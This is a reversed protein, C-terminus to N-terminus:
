INSAKPIPKTINSCQQPSIKTIKEGLVQGLAPYISVGMPDRRAVVALRGVLTARVPHAHALALAVDSRPNIVKIICAIDLRNTTIIITIPDELLLERAM